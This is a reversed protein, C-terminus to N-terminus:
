FCSCNATFRTQLLINVIVTIVILLLLVIVIIIIIIVYITTIIITIVIVCIKHSWVFTVRSIVFMDVAYLIM